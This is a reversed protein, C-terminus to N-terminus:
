KAGLRNLSLEGHYTRGSNNTFSYMPLQDNLKLYYTKGTTVLMSPPPSSINPVSVSYGSSSESASSPSNGSSEATKAGNEFDKELLLTGTPTTYHYAIKLSGNTELQAESFQITALRNSGGCLLILLAGSILLFAFTSLHVIKSETNM